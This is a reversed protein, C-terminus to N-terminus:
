MHAIYTIVWHPHAEIQLNMSQSPSYTKQVRERILAGRVMKKWREVVRAERKQVSFVVLMM